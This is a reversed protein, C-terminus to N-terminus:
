DARCDIFARESGLERLRGRAVKLYTAVAGKDIRAFDGAFVAFLRGM